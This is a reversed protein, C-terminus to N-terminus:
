PAVETTGGSAERIQAKAGARKLKKLYASGHPYDEPLSALGARVPNNHIYEQHALFSKEDTIRVDSFGRQWIEGAFGLEKKARFSFNGKILQMAKEITMDDNVSVLLHVHNRMVVFDHVKFKGALVYSRLVDIFLGAMRDTQFVARGGSTSTTLFFTRVQGKSSQPDAPRSPKAM